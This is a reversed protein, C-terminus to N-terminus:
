HRNPCGGGLSDDTIYVDNSRLTTTSRWTGDPWQIRFTMVAYFWRPATNDYDPTFTHSGPNLFFNYNLRQAAVTYGSPGNCPDVYLRIIDVDLKIANCPGSPSWWDCYLAQGRWQNDGVIEKQWVTMCVKLLGTGAGNVQDYTKCVNGNEGDTDVALAANAGTTFLLTSALALATLARRM